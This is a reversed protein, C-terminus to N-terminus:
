WRHNGIDRAHEFLFDAASRFVFGAYGSDSCRACHLFSHCRATRFLNADDPVPFSTATIKINDIAVVRLELNPDTDGTFEAVGFVAQEEGAPTVEVAVRAEISEFNPWSDIQPTHVVVTGEEGTLPHPFSVTARREPEATTEAEQGLVRTTEVMSIISIVFIAVSVRTVFNMVSM